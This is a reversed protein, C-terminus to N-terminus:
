AFHIWSRQSSKLKKLYYLIIKVFPYFVLRTTTIRSATTQVFLTNKSLIQLLLSINKQFNQTFAPFQKYCLPQWRFAAIFFSLIFRFFCSVIVKRVFRGFFSFPEKYPFTLHLHGFFSPIEKKPFTVHGHGFFSAYM